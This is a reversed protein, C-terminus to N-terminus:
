VTAEPPLVRLRLRRKEADVEFTPDRKLEALWDHPFATVQELERVEHWRLDSLVRVIAQYTKTRM